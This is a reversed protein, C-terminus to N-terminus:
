FKRIGKIIPFNHARNQFCKLVMYALYYNGTNCDFVFDVERPNKKKEFYPSTDGHQWTCNCFKEKELILPTEIM